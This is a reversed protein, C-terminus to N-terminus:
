MDRVFRKFQVLSLEALAEQGALLNTSSYAQFVTRVTSAYPALAVEVERMAAATAAAAAVAAFGTGAGLVGLIGAACEVLESRHVSRAYYLSIPERLM